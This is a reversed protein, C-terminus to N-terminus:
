PQRLGCHIFPHTAHRTGRVGALSISTAALGILGGNRANPSVSYVFDTVLAQITLKIKATDGAIVFERIVRTSCFM